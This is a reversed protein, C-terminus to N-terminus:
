FCTTGVAFIDGNEIRSFATGDGSDAISKRNGPNISGSATNEFSFNVAFVNKFSCGIFGHLQKGFFFEKNFVAFANLSKGIANVADLQCSHFLRDFDHTNETIIQTGVPCVFPNVAANGVASLDTKFRCELRTRNHM